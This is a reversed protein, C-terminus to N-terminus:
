SPLLWNALEAPPKIYATEIGECNRLRAIVKEAEDKNPVEVTFYPALLRHTQGPHMPELVVGLEKAARLLNRSAPSTPQPKQLQIAEKPDVVVTVQMAEDGTMCAVKSLRSSQMIPMWGWSKLSM